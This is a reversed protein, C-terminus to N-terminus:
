MGRIDYSIPHVPKLGRKRLDAVVLKKLRDIDKVSMPWLDVVFRPNKGEWFGIRYGAGGKEISSIAEAPDAIKAALRQEAVWYSREAMVDNGFVLADAHVSAGAEFRITALVKGAKTRLTVDTNKIQWTGADTKTTTGDRCDHTFSGDKRFTFTESDWGSNSIEWCDIIRDPKLQAPSAGSLCIAILLAVRTM